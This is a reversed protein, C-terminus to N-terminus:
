PTEHRRSAHSYYMFLGAALTLFIFCTAVMKVEFRWVSEVQRSPVFAAIMGISTTVLGSVAALRLTTQKYFGPIWVRRFAVVTLAGYLYLYSLMQLVVSLDLLTVYAEKVSTQGVFSM